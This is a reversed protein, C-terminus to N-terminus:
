DDESSYVKDKYTTKVVPKGNVVEYTFDKGWGDASCLSADLRVVASRLFAPHPASPARLEVLSITAEGIEMPSRDWSVIESDGRVPLLQSRSAPLRSDSLRVLFGADCDRNRM